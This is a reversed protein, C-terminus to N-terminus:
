LKSHLTEKIIQTGIEIINALQCVSSINRCAIKIKAYFRVALVIENRVVNSTFKWTGKQGTVLSPSHDGKHGMLPFIEGNDAPYASLHTM